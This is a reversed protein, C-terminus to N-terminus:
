LLKTIIEDKQNINLKIICNFRMANSLALDNM